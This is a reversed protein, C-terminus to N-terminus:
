KVSLEPAGFSWWLKDGGQVKLPSSGPVCFVCHLDENFTQPFCLMFIGLILETFSIWSQCNREKMKVKCALHGQKCLCSLLGESDLKEIDYKGLIRQM